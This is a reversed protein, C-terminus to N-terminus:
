ARYWRYQWGGGASGGAGGKLTLEGTDTADFELPRSNADSVLINTPSNSLKIEADAGTGSIVTFCVEFLVTGDAATQPSAGPATWLFTMKGVPVAGQGPLGFNQDRFVEFLGLSNNLNQLKKFQLLGADYDLTFQLGLIQTFNRVAVSVCVEDSNNATADSILIGVPNQFPMEEGSFTSSVSINPDYHDLNLPTNLVTTAQSPLSSICLLLVAMLGILPLKITGTM